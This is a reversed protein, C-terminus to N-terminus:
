GHLAETRGNSPPPTQNDLRSRASHTGAQWGILRDNHSPCVPNFKGFHRKHWSIFDAWSAQGDDSPRWPPAAPVAARVARYIAAPDNGGTREFCERAAKAGAQIMKVTVTENAQPAVNLSQKITASAEPAAYLTTGPAPMKGGAWSVEKLDGGFLVVKGVAEGAVPASALAVARATAQRPTDGYVRAFVEDGAWLQVWWRGLSPYEDQNMTPLNGVRLPPLTGDALLARLRSRLTADVYQGIEKGTPPTANQSTM